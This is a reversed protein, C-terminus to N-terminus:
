SSRAPRSCSSRCSVCHAPRRSRLSQSRSSRRRHSLRTLPPSSTVTPPPPPEPATEPQDASENTTVPGGRDHSTVSPSRDHGRHGLSHCRRPRCPPDAGTYSRAPGSNVDPGRGYWSVCGLPLLLHSVVCLRHSRDTIQDDLERAVLHGPRSESSQDIEDVPPHDADEVELEDGTAGIPGHFGDLQLIEVTVTLEVERDELARRRPHEILGVEVVGGFASWGPEDAPMKIKSFRHAVVNTCPSRWPPASNTAAPYMGSASMAAESSAVSAPQAPVCRRSLVLVHWSQHSTDGARRHDRAGRGRDGVTHRPSLGVSPGLLAFCLGVLLLLLLRLVVLRWRLVGLGSRRGSRSRGRCRIRDLLQCFNASRLFWPIRVSASNWACFALIRADYRSATGSTTGTGAGVSTSATRRAACGCGAPRTCGGAAPSTRTSAARQARRAPAAVRGRRAIQPLEALEM